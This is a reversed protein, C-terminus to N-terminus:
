KAEPNPSSRAEAAVAALADRLARVRIACAAAEVHRGALKHAIRWSDTEVILQAIRAM